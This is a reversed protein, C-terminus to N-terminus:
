KRFKKNVKIPVELRNYPNLLKKKEEISNFLQNISRIDFCWLNDNIDIYSCFYKIDIKSIPELTYFDSNNKSDDLKQIYGRKNYLYKLYCRQIKIIEKLYKMENILLYFLEKKKLKNDIKNINNKKLTNLIDKKLYDNTKNTFKNIVILNNQVLYYRKHKYCYLGYKKKNKCGVCICM